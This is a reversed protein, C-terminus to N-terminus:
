ARKVRQDCSQVTASVSSGPKPSFDSAPLTARRLVDVSDVVPLARHGLEVVMFAIVGALSGVRRPGRVVPDPANVTSVLHRRDMEADHGLAKLRPDTARVSFTVRGDRNSCNDDSNSLM